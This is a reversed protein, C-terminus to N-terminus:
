FCHKELAISYHNLFEQVVLVPTSTIASGTCFSGTFFFFFTPVKSQATGRNNSVQIIVNCLKWKRRLTTKHISQFFICMAKTRTAQSNRLYKYWQTELCESIYTRHLILISDIRKMGHQSQYMFSRLGYPKRDTQPIISRPPPHLSHPPIKWIYPWSLCSLQWNRAFTSIWTASSVTLM